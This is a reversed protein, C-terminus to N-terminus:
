GRFVSKDWGYAAACALYEYTMTTNFMPPDDSNLTVPIGAAMLDPM